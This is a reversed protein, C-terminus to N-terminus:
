RHRLLLSGPISTNGMTNAMERKVPTVKMEWSLNLCTGWNLIVAIIIDDSICRRAMISQRNQNEAQGDIDAEQGDDGEGRAKASIVEAAKVRYQMFRTNQM